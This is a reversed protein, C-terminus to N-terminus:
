IQASLARFFYRLVYLCVIFFYDFCRWSFSFDDIEKQFILVIFQSIFLLRWDDDKKVSSSKKLISISRKVVHIMIKIIFNLSSSSSPPSNDNIKIIQSLLDFLQTQTLFLS